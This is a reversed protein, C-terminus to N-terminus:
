LRPRADARTQQEASELIESIIRACITPHTQVIQHGAGEIWTLSGLKHAGDIGNAIFDDIRDRPLHDMLAGYLLHISVRKAISGITLYTVSMGHKDRYTATEQRRTCRLTVGEKDPYELSPLARLGHDVFLRLVRPDWSKWAARSNFLEFAAERSPWIDRRKESADALYNHTHRLHEPIYSPIELLIIIEPNLQPQYTLSLVQAVAGLSHGLLVLRRKTFDVDVGTGLGALFAHLARAYEQWGFIEDYGWRLYEENLEAAEGCNPADVSWVEHIRTNSPLLHYLDGIMPEYQEKHFGTAHAFVLTYGNSDYANPSSADSGSSWYRKATLLLPYNPRPDFVYCESQLAAM